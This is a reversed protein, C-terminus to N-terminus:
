FKFVVTKTELYDDLIQYGNERGFGSEKIGGFPLEPLVKTHQNVWVIGVEFGEIAKKAQRLDNTWVSAGLGYCTANAYKLAEDMDKVSNIVMIPGFVEETMVKSTMPVQVLVTPEFFSGKLDSSKPIRGGLLVCSPNDKKASAVFDAMKKQEEFSSMPGM